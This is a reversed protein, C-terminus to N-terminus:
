RKRLIRKGQLAMEIQKKIVRQKLMNVVIVVYSNFLNDGGEIIRLNNAAISDGTEVVEFIVDASFFEPSAENSGTLPLIDIDVEIKLREKVIRWLQPYSTSLLRAKGKRIDEINKITSDKAVALSLRCRAVETLNEILCTSLADRIYESSGDGNDEVYRDLGIIAVSKDPYGPSKLVRIIDESRMLGMRGTVTREEIKGDVLVPGIVSNISYPIVLRKKNSREFFTIGNRALYDMVAQAFGNKVVMVDGGGIEKLNQIFEGAM